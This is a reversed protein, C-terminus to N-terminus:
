KTGNLTHNYDFDFLKIANNEMDGKTDNCPQLYKRWGIKSTEEIQNHKSCM